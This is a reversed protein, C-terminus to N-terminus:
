ILSDFDFVGPEIPSFTDPDFTSPFLGIWIRCESIKDFSLDCDEIFYKRTSPNFFIKTNDFTEMYIM